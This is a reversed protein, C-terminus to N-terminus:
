SFLSTWLPRAVTAREDFSLRTLLANAVAPLDHRADPVQGVPLLIQERHRQLVCIRRPLRVLKRLM